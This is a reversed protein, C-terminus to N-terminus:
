AISKNKLEILSSMCAYLLDPIGKLGMETLHNLFEVRYDMYGISVGGEQALEQLYYTTIPKNHHKNVKEDKEIMEMFRKSLSVFGGSHTISLVRQPDVQKEQCLELIQEIHKESFSFAQTQEKTKCLGLNRWLSNCMDMMFTNFHELYEQTHKSKWDVAKHDNEEFAVKYQHIIGCMRSVAMATTSFFNRHVFTAAPIIIDPIDDQRSISAVLEFFSLGAHQLLVHDEEALLGAICLKDVHVVFRQITQFYDVDFSLHGFFTTLRDVSDDLTAEHCRDVHQKWDLAAWNKLWNTYCLLLRAKWKVDSVTYLRSLPKLVHQYLERFSTPKLYTILELIEDQFDHGNWTKMYRFLFVQVAPLQTKTFRTFKLLVQLMRAMETKQTDKKNGSTLLDFLIQIIYYSLRTVATGSPEYLLSYQLSRKELVMNLQEPLSISEINQIVEAVDIHDSEVSREAIIRPGNQRKTLRVRKTSPIQIKDKFTHTKPEMDHKWFVRLKILNERMDPLPSTFVLMDALRANPPVTITSDFTQYCLLLALLDADDKESDIMEKLRTIRYITVHERKTLYYLVHCLSHRLEQYKLHRFFVHYLNSLRRKTNIVDFVTVTWNLLLSIIDLRSEKRAVSGIIRIVYDDAIDDRPLLLEVLSKCLSLSLHGSIIVEFLTNFEVQNLGFKTIINRISMVQKARRTMKLKGAITNCAAIIPGILKDVNQTTITEIAIKPLALEQDATTEQQDQTEELLDSQIDQDIQQEVRDEEVVPDAEIPDEAVPDEAVPDAEVLDEEMSDAEVLDKGAPEEEIPEETPEQRSDEVPEDESHSSDIASYHQRAEM